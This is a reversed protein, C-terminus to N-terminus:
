APHAADGQKAERAPAATGCGGRATRCACWTSSSSTSAPPVGPAQPRARMSGSSSRSSSPPARRGPLRRGLAPRPARLAGRRHRRRDVAPHAVRARRPVTAGRRPPRRRGADLVAQRRRGRRGAAAREHRAPVARTHARRERIGHGARRRVLRRLRRAPRRLRHRGRDDAGAAVLRLADDPGVATAAPGADETRSAPVPGRTRAGGSARQGAAERRRRGVRDHSRCSTGRHDHIVGM